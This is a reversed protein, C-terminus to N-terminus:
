VSLLSKTVKATAILRDGARARTELFALRRGLKIVESEFIVEDGREAGALISIQIDHTVADTNDELRSLLGCYACIDCLMYVVGGHYKGAPNVANEGVSALLRGKGDESSIDTIGLHRHLPHNRVAELRQQLTM